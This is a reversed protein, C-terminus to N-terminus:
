YETKAVDPGVIDVWEMWDIINYIFDIVEYKMEKADIDAIRGIPTGFIGLHNGGMGHVLIDPALRKIETLARVSITANGDLSLPFLTKGTFNYSHFLTYLPAPIKTLQWFSDSYALFVYDYDDFDRISTSLNVFKQGNEICEIEQELREYEEETMDDLLEYDESSYTSETLIPIVQGDTNRKIYEAVLKPTDYENGQFTATSTDSLYGDIDDCEDPSFYLILVKHKSFYDHREKWQLYRSLFVAMEARTTGTTPFFRNEYEEMFEHYRAWDVAASAYSSIENEDEFDMGVEVKPKGASRWLITATQQHTVTLGGRFTGDPYGQVIGTANAWVSATAYYSDAQVDSYTIPSENLPSGAARYLITALQGRNVFSDPRFETETFGQMIGNDCVYQVADAYWADAPVDSFFRVGANNAFTGTNEGKAVIETTKEAPELDVPATPSPHRPSTYEKWKDDM